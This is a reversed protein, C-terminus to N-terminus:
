SKSRQWIEEFYPVLILKVLPSCLCVAVESNDVLSTATMNMSGLIAREGDSIILKTHLVRKPDSWRIDIGTNKLLKLTKSNLERQIANAFKQNLLVRINVGDDKRSKLSSYISLPLGVLHKEDLTMQFFALCLEKKTSRIVDYLLPYIEREVAVTTYTTVEFPAVHYNKFRQQPSKRPYLKKM